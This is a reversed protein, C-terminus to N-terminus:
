EPQRTGRMVLYSLVLSVFAVGGQIWKWNEVTFDLAKELWGMFRFFLVMLESQSGSEVADVVTQLTPLLLLTFLLAPVGVLVIITAAKWRRLCCALLYFICTYEVLWLLYSPLAEAMTGLQSTLYELVPLQYRDPVFIGSCHPELAIAAAGVILNVVASLLLYVIGYVMLSLVNSLWVSTRPTGFRLLFTTDQKATRLALFFVLAMAFPLDPMQSTLRFDTWGMFAMGLELAQVALMLLVLGLALKLKKVRHFRMCGGFRSLTFWNHNEVLPALRNEM